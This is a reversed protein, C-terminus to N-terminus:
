FPLDEGEETINGPGKQAAAVASNAPSQYDSAPSRRELVKFMSGVVETTKRTKNEADQWTRHTLKGELFITSGKKLYKMANDAQNRWLVIDHWETNEQWNGEKDQYKESTAISFTVRNSGNDLTRQEPDKGLNGILMVRNM